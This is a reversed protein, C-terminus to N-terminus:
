FPIQATVELKMKTCHRSLADLIRQIQNLEMSPDIKWSGLSHEGNAKGSARRESRSENQPRTLCVRESSSCRLPEGHAANGSNPRENTRGRKRHRGGKEEKENQKNVVVLSPGPCPVAPLLQFPSEVRESKRVKSTVKRAQCAKFHLPRPALAHDM